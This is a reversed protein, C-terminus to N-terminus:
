VMNFVWPRLWPRLNRGKSGVRMEEVGEWGKGGEMGVRKRGERPTTEGGKGERGKFRPGFTRRSVNQFERKGYTLKLANESLISTELSPNM